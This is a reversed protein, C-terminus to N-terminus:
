GGPIEGHLLYNEILQMRRRQLAPDTEMFPHGFAAERMIRAGCRQAQALLDASMAPPVVRDSGGAIFLFRSCDQPLHEVPDYARPCGYASLRAPTSDVIVREPLADARLGDLFAIGGFSMAYVLGRAYGSADLAARIEAYDSVIARLRRRGGSRGYGRFDYVYVDFGAAAFPAFAGIIQDALIANGQMVLLYGSPEVPPGEGGGARLRYGRLTRGDRTVFALDEVGRLRAVRGPDPDGAMRSWLWFVFPEKLGCVSQELPVSEDEGALGLAPLVLLLAVLRPFRCSMTILIACAGTGRIASSM